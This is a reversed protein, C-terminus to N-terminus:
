FSTKNLIAFSLILIKNFFFSSWAFVLLHLSQDCSNVIKIITLIKFLIFVEIIIDYNITEEANCVADYIHFFPLCM